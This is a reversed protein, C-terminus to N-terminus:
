IDQRHKEGELVYSIPLITLVEQFVVGTSFYDIYSHVSNRTNNAMNATYGVVYSLLCQDFSLVRQSIARWAHHCSPM